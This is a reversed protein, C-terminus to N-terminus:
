KQENCVEEDSLELKLLTLARRLRTAATGQPVELAKATEVTTFGCFYRLIIPEKLERPLKSLAQKLPLADFQEVASEPLEELTVARKRRTLETKCTNILIRILWTEFFEPQRLKKLSVLGKYVAEDVADLADQESGLYLYATRYLKSRVLQIKEAYENENM